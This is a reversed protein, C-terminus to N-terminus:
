WFQNHNTDEDDDCNMHIDDVPHFRYVCNEMDLPESHLWFDRHKTQYVSMRRILSHTLQYRGKTVNLGKLSLPLACLYLSYSSQHTVTLYNIQAQYLIDTKDYIFIDHEFTSPNIILHNIKVNQPQCYDDQIYINSCSVIDFQCAKFIYLAEAQIYSKYKGDYVIYEHCEIHNIHPVCQDQIRGNTILKQCKVQKLRENVVEIRLQLADKCVITEYEIHITKARLPIMEIDQLPTQDTIQMRFSLFEPKYFAKCTSFFTNDFYDSDNLADGLAQAEHVPHLINNM